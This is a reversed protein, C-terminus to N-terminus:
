RDRRYRWAHQDPEPDVRHIRIMWALGVVVGIWGVLGLVPRAPLGLIDPPTDFMTTGGMTGPTTIFWLAALGIALLTLGIM